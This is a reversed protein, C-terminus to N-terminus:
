HCYPVSRGNKQYIREANTKFIKLLDANSLPSGLLMGQIFRPDIWDIDSGFLIREPGLASVLNRIMGNHFYDGSIDVMVNTYKHCLDVVEAFSGVRGGAHGLILTTAPFAQIHKEFLGPVSFKQTPNYSSVEWSHTLLPKGYKKAAAFALAYREDSAFVQHSSPHIKIGSCEPLPLASELNTRSQEPVNPNFVEFFRMRGASERCLEYAFDKAAKGPYLIAENPTVFLKQISLADLVKQWQPWRYNLSPVPFRQLNPTNTTHAHADIIFPAVPHYQIEPPFEATQGLIKRLNNGAIACKDQWSLNSLILPAMSSDEALFPMFSGYLLKGSLGEQGMRELALMNCLNATCLFFGPHKKLLEVLKAFDYLIKRDGTALILILGPHCGALPDLAELEVDTAKVILPCRGETLTAADSLSMVGPRFWALTGKSLKSERHLPSIPVAPVTSDPADPFVASTQPPQWADLWPLQKRIALYQNKLLAVPNM